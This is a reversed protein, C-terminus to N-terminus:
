LKGGKRVYLKEGKRIMLVFSHLFSVILIRLKSREDNGKKEKSGMDLNLYVVFVHKWHTLSIPFNCM